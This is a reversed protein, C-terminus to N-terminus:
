QKYKAKEKAAEQRAKERRNAVAQSKPGLIGGGWRKRMNEYKNNYRSRAVTVLQGFAQRDEDRVGTLALCTATKKHVVQGLRAKSKVICYPVDQKRCLAPLYIVLEIPDVDHAIVVFLAKKEEILKTVHNIGCKVVIPKPTKVPAGPNDKRAQAAALLRKKKDAKEEPRYKNLLKLINAATNSDVTRTFQNISPPVKLRMGLVRRKRQLVVYRPWKVFHTLDRKPQIDNGIGYNPVKPEWIKIKKRKEDVTKAPTKATAKTVKGGKVPVKTSKAPAAGKGKAAAPKTDKPAAPKAAAPKAAAPKAAAPKAAAPKAAAPKAAAPKAAPKPADAKAAPKATKQTNKPPM